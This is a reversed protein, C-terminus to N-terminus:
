CCFGFWLGVSGKPADKIHLLMRPIPQWQQLFVYNWVCILSQEYQKYRKWKNFMGELTVWFQISNSTRGAATVFFESIYRRPTPQSFQCISRIRRLSRWCQLNLCPLFWCLAPLLYIVALWTNIRWSQLHLRFTGGFGQNVNLPSYPIIDWFVSSRM